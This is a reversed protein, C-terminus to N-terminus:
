ILQKIYLCLLCPIYHLHPILLAIRVCYSRILKALCIIFCSVILPKPALYVPSAAKWVVLLFSLVKQVKELMEPPLQGVAQQDFRLVMELTDGTIPPWASWIQDSSKCEFVPTWLGFPDRMAVYAVYNRRFLHVTNSLEPRVHWSIHLLTSVPYIDEPVQSFRRFHGSM